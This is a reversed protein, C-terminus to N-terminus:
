IFITKMNLSKERLKKVEEVAERMAEIDPKNLQENNEEADIGQQKFIDLVKKKHKRQCLCGDHVPLVLVGQKMGAEMINLMLDAETRQLKGWNSRYLFKLIPEHQQELQRIYEELISIDMKTQHRNYTRIVAKRGAELNYDKRTNMMYLMLNKMIKRKPDPKPYIYLDGKPIPENAEKYLLQVHMSKGDIDACLEDDIEIYPRLRKSMSIWFARYFRGGISATPDNFSAVPKTLTKDPYELPVPKAFVFARNENLIDFDERPVAPDIEFNDTFGWYARIRKNRNLQETTTMEVEKHDDLRTERYIMSSPPTYKVGEIVPVKTSYIITSKKVGIGTRTILKLEIFHNLVDLFITRAFGYDSRKIEKFNKIYVKSGGGPNNCIIVDIAKICSQIAQGSKDKIPAKSWFHLAKDEAGTLSFRFHKKHKTKM